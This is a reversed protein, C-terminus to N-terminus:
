TGPCRLASACGGDADGERTSTHDVTPDVGPQERPVADGPLPILSRIRGMLTFFTRLSSLCTCPFPSMGMSVCLMYRLLSLGRQYFIWCTQLPFLISGPFLWDKPRLINLWPRRVSQWGPLFCFFRGNVGM